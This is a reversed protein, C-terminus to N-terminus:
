RVEELQLMLTVRHGRGTQSTIGIAALRLERLVDALSAGEFAQGLFIVLRILDYPHGELVVRVIGSDRPQPTPTQPITASL